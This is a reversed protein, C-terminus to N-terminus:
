TIVSNGIKYVYDLKPVLLPLLNQMNYALEIEYYDDYKFSSTGKERDFKNIITRIDNRSKWNFPIKPYLEYEDTASIVIMKRIKYGEETINGVYYLDQLSFTEVYSDPHTHIEIYEHTKDYYEPNFRIYGCEGKILYFSGNNADILYELERHCSVKCNRGDPDCQVLNLKQISYESVDSMRWASLNNKCSRIIGNLKNESIKPSETTVPTTTEKISSLVPIVTTPSTTITPQIENNSPTPIVKEQGKEQGKEQSSSCGTVILFGVILIAVTSSYKLM